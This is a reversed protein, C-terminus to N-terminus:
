IRKGGILVGNVNVITDEQKFERSVLKYDVTVAVM